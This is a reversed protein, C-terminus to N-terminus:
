RHSSYRGPNMRLLLRVGVFGLGLGILGGTLSLTLSEILLQRVIQGRGAGLAARTAFERKGHPPGHWCCIRWM